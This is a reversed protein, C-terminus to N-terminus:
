RWEVCVYDFKRSGLAELLSVKDRKQQRAVCSASETREAQKRAEAERRQAETRKAQKADAKRREAERRTEDVQRAVVAQYAEDLSQAAAQLEKLEEELKPVARLKQRQEGNLGSPDVQQLEVAQRLKKEVARAKRRTEALPEEAARVEAIKADEIAKTAAERAATARAQAEAQAEAKLRAEAAKLDQLRRSEVAAPEVEQATAAAGEGEEEASLPATQLVHKRDFYRADVESALTPVHPRTSTGDLLAGWDIVRALFPHARVEDAGNSGDSGSGGSGVTSGLRQEPKKALLKRVISIADNSLPPRGDEGGHQQRAEEGNASPPRAPTASPGGTPRTTSPGAAPQWNAAPAAAPATAPAAAGAASTVPVPFRVRENCIASGIAKDNGGYFPPYGCLLEFLLVGLAWWDCAAGVPQSLIAEPALYCRTGGM